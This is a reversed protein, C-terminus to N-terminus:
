SSISALTAPRVCRPSSLGASMSVALLIYMDTLSLGYVLSSTFSMM